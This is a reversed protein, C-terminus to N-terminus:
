PTGRLGAGYAEGLQIIRRSIDKMQMEDSGSFIRGSLSYEPKIAIRERAITRPPTHRRHHCRVGKRIVLIGSAARGM